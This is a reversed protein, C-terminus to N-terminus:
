GSSARVNLNVVLRKLNPLSLRELDEANMASLCIHMLTAAGSTWFADSTNSGYVSQLLTKIVRREATSNGITRGFPNYFLDSEAPNTLDLVQVHFGRAQLYGATTNYIEGSVDLIVSSSSDSLQLVNPTLVSSTKGGGTPSICVMNKNSDKLSLKLENNIVFGHNQASLFKRQESKSMWRASSNDEKKFSYPTVLFRVIGFLGRWILRLIDFFIMTVSNGDQNRKM